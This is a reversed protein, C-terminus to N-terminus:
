VLVGSVAGSRSAKYCASSETTAAM